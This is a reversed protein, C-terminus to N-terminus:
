YLYLSMMWDVVFNCFFKFINLVTECVKFLFVRRSIMSGNFTGMEVSMWGYFYIWFPRALRNYNHQQQQQVRM